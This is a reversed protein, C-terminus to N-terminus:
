PLIEGLLRGGELATVRVSRLKNHLDDGSEAAVEVYRTTYGRWRGNKHEEFLVEVIEGVFTSLYSRAMEGAIEGARHARSEKEANSKVLIGIDVRYVFHKLKWILEGIGKLKRRDIIVAHFVLRHEAGM